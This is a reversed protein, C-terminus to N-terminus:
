TDMTQGELLPWRLLGLLLLMPVAGMTFDSKGRPVCRVHDKKLLPELLFHDRKNGGSKRFFVV